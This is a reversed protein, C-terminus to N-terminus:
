EELAPNVGSPKQAPRPLNQSPQKEAPAGDSTSTPNKLPARLLNFPNKTLRWIPTDFTGKVDVELFFSLPSLISGLVSQLSRQEQDLLYAKARFDLFTSPLIVKGPSDVRLADGRLTLDPMRVEKPALELSTQLRDLNLSTMTLGVSSFVRSLGGFLHIRGLNADEIRLEGSGELSEWPVGDFSVELQLDVKGKLPPTKPPGLTLSPAPDLEILIKKFTELPLNDSDILLDAAWGEGKTAPKIEGVLSIRGEDIEGELLPIFNLTNEQYVNLQIRDFPVRRFTGASRSLIKLDISQKIAAEAGYNVFGKIQTLPPSEFRMLEALVEMDPGFVVPITDLPQITSVDVFVRNGNKSGPRAFTFAIDGRTGYGDTLAELGILEAFGYAYWVLVNADSVPLGRFGVENAKIDVFAQISTREKWKGTVDVDAAAPREGPDIDNWLKTYFPPLLSDLFHAKVEGSAVIRFGTDDFSHIYYGEANQGDDNFVRIPGVQLRKDEYIGETRAEDFFAEKVTFHKANIGFIVKGISNDPGLFLTGDIKTRQSFDTRKGIGGGLLMPLDFVADPEGVFDFHIERDANAAPTETNLRLRMGERHLTLAPDLLTLGEDLEGELKLTVLGLEPVGLHGLLQFSSPCTIGTSLTKNDGFIDLRPNLLTLQKGDSEFSVEETFVIPDILLVHNDVFSVTAQAHIQEVQVRAPSTIEFHPVHVDALASWASASSSEFTLEILSEEVLEIYEILPVLKASSRRWLKSLNVSDQGAFDYGELTLKGRALIRTKRLALHAEEIKISNWDKDIKIESIRLIPEDSGDSLEPLLYLAGERLFFSELQLPGRWFLPTVDLDARVHEAEFIPNERTPDLLAFDEFIIKGTLDFLARGWSVHLGEQEFRKELYSQAAQPIAITGVVLISGIM